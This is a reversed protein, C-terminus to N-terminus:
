VIQETEANADILKTYQCANLGILLSIFYYYCDSSVNIYIAFGFCAGIWLLIIMKIGKIEEFLLIESKVFLSKVLFFLYTLITPLGAWWAILLVQNDLYSYYAGIGTWYWQKIPGVGQILYDLDFQQLFDLLQDSRTDEGSREALNTLTSEFTKNLDSNVVVIYGLGILVVMGIIGILANKTQLQAKFKAIFFLAAIVLYSRSGSALILFIIVMFTAINIMNKRKDEDNQLFYYPFVWILYVVFDRIATLYEKRSAGFGTKTLNVLSAAIIGFCLLYFLRMIKPFYVTDAAFFLLGFNLFTGIGKISYFFTPRKLFEHLDRISALFVFVLLLVYCVSIFSPFYKKYSLFSAVSAFSIFLNGFFGLKFYWPYVEELAILDIDKQAFYLKTINCLIGIVICYFILKPLFKM